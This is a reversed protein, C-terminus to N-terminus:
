GDEPPAALASEYTMRLSCLHTSMMEAAADPDRDAVADTIASHEASVLKWFEPPDDQLHRLSLVKFVPPTMISLLPNGAAHLLTTHFHPPGVGTVTARYEATTALGFSARLQELHEDTRREAALRAIPIELMERVELMDPLSVLDLGSMQGLRSELM